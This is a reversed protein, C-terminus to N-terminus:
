VEFPMRDLEQIDEDLGDTDWVGGSLVLADTRKKLERRMRTHWAIYQTKQKKWSRRMESKCSQAEKMVGAGFCLSM